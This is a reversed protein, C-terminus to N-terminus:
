SNTRIRLGLSARWFRRISLRTASWSSRPSVHSHDEAPDPFFNVLMRIVPALSEIRSLYDLLDSELATTKIKQRIREVQNSEFNPAAARVEKELKRMLAPDRIISVAVSPWRETLAVWAALQSAKLQPRKNFIDRGIGIDLLLHAHNFMRKAGRPSLPLVELIANDLEARLETKSIIYQRMRRHIIWRTWEDLGTAVQQRLRREAKDDNTNRVLDTLVSIVEAERSLSKESPLLVESVADDIVKRIRKKQHESLTELAREALAPVAAGAIAGAFALIVESGGSTVFTLGVTFVGAAWAMLPAFPSRWSAANPGKALFGPKPPVAPPEKGIPVLMNRLKQPLPPPLRLQIQILKELYARGYGDAARGTGPTTELAAYKIEASMAITDMDGILVTVVGEHGILQSVVECVELARPPRCRELNDVFIMLRRKGRLAREILCGLQRNADAMSGLAAESRPDDIWRAVGQISPALRQALLIVALALAPWALRTAATGHGLGSVATEPHAFPKLLSGGAPWFVAMAALAVALVGYWLRRRWRQESSLMASPLPTGLRVWWHRQKNAAKAVAAAFAAGLHPADDNAWADFWCIVHPADWDSGIALRGETMKALSTKGSGWPGNIAITLPTNTDATDMLLALADAYAGYSLADPDNPDVPKDAYLWYEAAPKASRADPGSPVEGAGTGNEPQGVRAMGTKTEASAM